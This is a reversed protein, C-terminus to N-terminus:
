QEALPEGMLSSLPVAGEAEGIVAIRAAATGQAGARALDLLMPVTVLITAGSDLLQKRVEDATYTPNITTVIGGALAVGHFVVAFEPINPSMLAVVEGATFGSAVLGGALSRVAADLEAYSVTRGTPGDVFAPRDGLEAARALVYGTLAVKPIEVSPLPREFIM